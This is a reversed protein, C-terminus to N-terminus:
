DSLVQVRFDTATGIREFAANTVRYVKWGVFRQALPTLDQAEYTQVYEVGRGGLVIPPEAKVNYHKGGCEQSALVAPTAGAELYNTLQTM